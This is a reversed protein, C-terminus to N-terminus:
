RVALFPLFATLDIPEPLPLEDRVCVTRGLASTERRLLWSQFKAARATEALSAGIAPRALALPFAGLPLTPGLARVSVPGDATFVRSFTPRVALRLVSAPAISQLALGARRGGLWWAGKRAVVERAPLESYIEYFDLIASRTAAPVRLRRRFEVERLQDALVSRALARSAGARGLAGRYA